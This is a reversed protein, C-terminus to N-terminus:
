LDSAKIPLCDKIQNEFTHILKHPFSFSDIKLVVMKYIASLTAKGNDTVTLGIGDKIYTASKKNGSHIYLTYGLKYAENYGPLENSM